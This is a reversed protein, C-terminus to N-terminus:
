KRWAPPDSAPFSEWSAEDVPDKASPKPELIPDSGASEGRINRVKRRKGARSALSRALAVGAISGLVAATWIRQQTRM